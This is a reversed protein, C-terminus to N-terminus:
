GARPREPCLCFKQCACERGASPPLPCGLRFGCLDCAGEQLGLNGRESGPFALGKRSSFDSPLKLCSARVDGAPRHPWTEVGAAHASLLRGEPSPFYGGASASGLSPRLRRQFTSWPLGAQRHQAHTIGHLASLGVCRLVAVELKCASFQPEPLYPGLTVCTSPLALKSGLGAAEGTPFRM